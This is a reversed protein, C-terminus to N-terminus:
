RRKNGSNFSILISAFFLVCMCVFLGWITPAFGRFKENFYDTMSEDPDVLDDEDITVNTDDPDVLDDEPPDSSYVLITDSLTVDDYLYATYWGAAKTPTYILYDIDSTNVTESHVVEGSPDEISLTASDNTRYSIIFSDYLYCLPLDIDIMSASTEYGSLTFSDTAKITYPGTHTGPAHDRLTVDYVGLNSGNYIFFSRTANEAPIVEMLSLYVGTNRHVVDITDADVATYLVDIMDGYYYTDNTVSINPTIGSDGAAITGNIDLTTYVSVPGSGTNFTTNAYVGCYRFFTQDISTTSYSGQDKFYLSDESDYVSWLSASSSRSISLSSVNNVFSYDYENSYLTVYSIVVNNAASGIYSIYTVSNVSYCLTGPTSVSLSGGYYKSGSKIGTGSWVSNDYSLSIIQEGTLTNAYSEDVNDFDVKFWITGDLQEEVSIMGSGYYVGGVTCTFSTVANKTYSLSSSWYDKFTYSSIIKCDTFRHKIFSADVTWAQTSSGSSSVMYPSSLSYSYDVTGSKSFNDNASVTTICLIFFIIFTIKTVM